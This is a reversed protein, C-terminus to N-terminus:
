RAGPQLREDRVIWRKGSPLTAIAEVDKIRIVTDPDTHTRLLDIIAQRLEPPAPRAWVVRLELENDGVQACQFFRIVPGLGPAVVLRNGLTVPALTKGSPFRLRESSRGELRELVFFGGATQRPALVARDGTDYRILPFGYNNLHTVVLRGATGPRVPDGREDLVEVYALFPNLLYADSGPLTGGLYGGMENSGYWSHVPCQMVRTLREKGQPTLLDGTTIVCAPSRGVALGQREVQEAIWELASAYGYLVYRPFARWQALEQALHAPTLETTLVLRTGPPPEAGGGGNSPAVVSVTLADPPVRHLHHLFAKASLDAYGSPLDRYFVMPEGTSGSTMKEVLFGAPVGTARLDQRHARVLAKTLLPLREFPAAPDLRQRYYPSHAVAWAVVADRQARCVERWAAPPGEAAALMRQLLPDTMASAPWPQILDQLVHAEDCGESRAQPAVVALPSRLRRRLRAAATLLEPRLYRARAAPSDRM